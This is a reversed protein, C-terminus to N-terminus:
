RLAARGAALGAAVMGAAAAALVLLAISSGPLSTGLVQDVIGELTGGSSRTLAVQRTLEVLLLASGAGVAGLLAGASLVPAIVFSAPAGVLRMLRVEDRKDDLALRIVAGLTTLGALLLVASGAVLVISLTERLRSLASIWARDYRVADVSPHEELMESLADLSGPDTSAPVIRISSPFPNEGLLESVDGLDPFLERFEELAREAPVRALRRVSPKSELEAVLSDVADSNADETLYVEVAAQDSWGSFLGELGAGIVLFAAFLFVSVSLAVISLLSAAPRRALDVLAMRLVEISIRIVRM